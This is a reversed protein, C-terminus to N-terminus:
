PPSLICALCPCSEISTDGDETIAPGVQAQVNAGVQAGQYSDGNLSQMSLFMDGSHPLSFSGSSGPFPLHLHRFVHSSSCYLLTSVRVSECVCWVHKLFVSM